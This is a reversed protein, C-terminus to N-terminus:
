FSIELSLFVIYHTKNLNALTNGVIHYFEM